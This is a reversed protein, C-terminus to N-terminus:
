KICHCPIMKKHCYNKKREYFDDIFLQNIHQQFLDDSQM